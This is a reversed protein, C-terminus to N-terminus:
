CWKLRMVCVLISMSLLFFYLFVMGAVMASYRSFYRKPSFLKSATLLDKLTFNSSKPPIYYNFVELIDDCLAFPNGNFEFRRFGPEIYIREFRHTSKQVPISAMQQQTNFIVCRYGAHIPISYLPNQVTNYSIGIIWM